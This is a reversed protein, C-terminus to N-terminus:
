IKKGETKAIQLYGEFFIPLLRNMGRGGTKMYMNDSIGQCNGM